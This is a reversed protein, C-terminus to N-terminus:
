MGYILRLPGLKVIGVAGARELGALWDDVRDLDIVASFRRERLESGALMVVGPHHRSLTDIIDALPADEVVLRRQLWALERVVDADEPHLSSNRVTLAQGAQLVLVDEGSRVSVLGGRVFVQVQESLRRVGFATGLVEAEVDGAAVVFSREIEPSVDVFVEGRALVVERRRDDFRLDVASGGSLVMRSGDDLLLERQEGRATMEDFHEGGYYLAALVALAVVSAAVALAQWRRTRRVRRRPAPRVALAPGLDTWLSRMEALAREHAPDAARWQEFADFDAPTAEGSTLRVIWGAAAEDATSLGDVAGPADAKSGQHSQRTTM